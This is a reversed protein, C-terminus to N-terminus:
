TVAASAWKCSTGGCVRPYVRLREPFTRRPVPEGACAPISGAGADRPRPVGRNGRVRPSLGSPPRVAVYRGVTGGCVRPYVAAGGVAAASISPEGACAPISGIVHRPCLRNRHNGRVRPSLAAPPPRSSTAATTGGCVRPYVKAASTFMRRLLPEGACAPISRIVQERPRPRVPNGRVRPSLGTCSTIAVCGPPTGGCVRPYVRQPWLWRWARWPEGACAPISRRSTSTFSSALHNGRM